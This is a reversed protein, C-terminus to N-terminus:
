YLLTIFFYIFTAAAKQFGEMAKWPWQMYMTEKLVNAMVETEAAILIPVRVSVGQKIPEEM